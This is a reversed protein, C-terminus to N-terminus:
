AKNRIAKPIWEIGPFIFAELNKNLPFCAEFNYNQGMASIVGYKKILNHRGTSAVFRKFTMDMDTLCKTVSVALKIWPEGRKATEKYKRYKEKHAKGQHLIYKVDQIDLEQIEHHKDYFDQINFTEASYSTEATKEVPLFISKFQEVMTIGYLIQRLLCKAAYYDVNKIGFMAFSNSLALKLASLDKSTNLLTIAHELM